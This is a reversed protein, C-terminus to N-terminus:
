SSESGLLVQAPDATVCTMSEEQKTFTLPALDIEVCKPHLDPMSTYFGLVKSNRRRKFM